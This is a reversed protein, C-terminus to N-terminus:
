EDLLRSLGDTDYAFRMATERTVAGSRVLSALHASLTHMGKDRGTQLVSAIQHTQGERIMSRVASTAVLVEHAPTRGGSKMPILRQCFVGGIVTSLQTRIQRQGEAPFVDVIREISEAASTTHLTSLVLHGTEAATLASQITQRDRMEGVMIVDPDERLADILATAFGDADTGIERQHVLAYPHSLLYEVPEEITVIHGGDRAAIASIMAALTTSKGSGTPGAIIVLGSPLRTLKKLIDPLGLVDFAPVTMPLLRIAAATGSQTRYLHVRLRTSKSVSFGYDFSGGRTLADKAADTMLEAMAREMLDPQNRVATYLRGDKRFHADPVTIHIDSCGQKEAEAIMQNIVTM